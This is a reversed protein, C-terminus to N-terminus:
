IHHKYNHPGWPKTLSNNKKNIYNIKYVKRDIFLYSKNLYTHHHNKNLLSIIILLKDFIFIKVLIVCLKVIFYWAKIKCAVILINTTIPIYKM